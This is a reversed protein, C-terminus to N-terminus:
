KLLLHQLQEIAKEADKRAEKIEMAKANMGLAKEIAARDEGKAIDSSDAWEIDHMANACDKLHFGFARRLPDTDGCLQDSVEDLKCYFYDWSGGSM